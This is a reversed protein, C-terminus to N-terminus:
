VAEKNDNPAIRCFTKLIPDWAAHYREIKEFRVVWVWPNAKWGYISLEAPKVTDDWVNDSFYGLNAAPSGSDPTGEALVDAATIDHLREANVSLARLFIRAAEKPMHISPRWKIQQDQSLTMGDAEYITKRPEDAKYLWVTRASDLEKYKAWTERVYMIDGPSYPPKYIQYTDVGTPVIERYGLGDECLELDSQPQPKILRRTVTKIEAQVAQVMATNFLIPKTKM